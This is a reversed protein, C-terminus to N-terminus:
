EGKSTEKKQAKFMGALGAEPKLRSFWSLNVTNTTWSGLAFKCLKIETVDISFSLAIREM